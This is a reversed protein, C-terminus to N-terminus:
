GSGRDHHLELDPEGTMVERAAPGVIKVVADSVLGPPAWVDFVLEWHGRPRKTVKGARYDPGVLHRSDDDIFLGAQVMGDIAAKAAPSVNAPDFKGASGPRAFVYVHALELMFATPGMLERAHTFGLNRWAQVLEGHKRFHPRDNDSFRPGVLVLRALPVNCRLDPGSEETV